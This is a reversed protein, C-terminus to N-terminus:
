IDGRVLLVAVATSWVTQTLMFTLVGHVNMPLLGISLGILPIAGALWGLLGVARVPGSGRLLAVSWFLVAISMTVVAFRTCVRIGIGCFVMIEKMMELEATPRGQFRGVFEPTIFGDALAAAVM